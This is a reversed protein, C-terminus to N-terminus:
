FIVAPTQPDIHRLLKEWVKSIEHFIDPEQPKNFLTNIWWRWISIGNSAEKERFEIYLKMKKIGTKYKVSWYSATYCDFWEYFYMEM